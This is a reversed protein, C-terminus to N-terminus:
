KQLCLYNFEMKQTFDYGEQVPRKFDLNVAADSIINKNKDRLDVSFLVVNKDLKKYSTKASWGLEKQKKATTFIQNYSLGKQYSDQTSVGRWTTEAIYIYIANVVFIVAFFIFFLYPIKSKKPEQNDM